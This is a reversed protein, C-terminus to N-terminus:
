KHENRCMLTVALRVLQEPADRLPSPQPLYMENDVLWFFDIHGCLVASREVALDSLDLPANAAKQYYLIYNTESGYEACAFGAISQMAPLCYPDADPWHKEDAATQQNACAASCTANSHASVAFLCALATLCFFWYRKAFPAVSIKLLAITM